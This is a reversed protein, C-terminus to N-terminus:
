YIRLDSAVRNKVLSRIAKRGETLPQGEYPMSVRQIPNTGNGKNMRNAQAASLQVIEIVENQM